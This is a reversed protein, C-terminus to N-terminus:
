PAKRRRVRKGDKVALRPGLSNSDPIAQGQTMRAAVASAMGIAKMADSHLGQVHDIGEGEVRWVVHSGASNPQIIVRIIGFKHQGPISTRAIRIMTRVGRGLTPM